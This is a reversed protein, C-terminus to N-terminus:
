PNKPRSSSKLRSVVELLRSAIRDSFRFRRKAKSYVNVAWTDLRILVSKLRGDQPRARYTTARVNRQNTLNSTYYYLALSRRSVHDPCCIPEPFGHFSRDDTNFIVAHNFRPLYRSVRQKMSTDWFELAGGWEERWQPTLYLILNVRRQWDPRYHHVSFDTHVNLFGGREVQHLGGGDLSSDAILNTIGTLETLWAVFPPSNLEDVVQGISQPFLVRRNLGLKNENAHKYRTWEASHSGPFEAAIVQAANPDLFPQLQIHPFPAAIRYQRALHRVLPGWKAYPFVPDPGSVYRATSM